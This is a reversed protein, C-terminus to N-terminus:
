KPNKAPYRRSDIRLFCAHPGGFRQIISKMTIGIIESATVCYIPRLVLVFSSLNNVPSENPVARDGNKTYKSGVTGKLLLSGIRRSKRGLSTLSSSLSEHSLELARTKPESMSQARKRRILEM